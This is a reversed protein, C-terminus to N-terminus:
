HLPIAQILSWAWAASEDGIVGRDWFEWVRDALGSLIESAQPLMIM